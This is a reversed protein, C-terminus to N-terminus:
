YNFSRKGGVSHAVPSVDLKNNEYFKPYLMPCPTCYLEWESMMLHSFAHPCLHDSCNNDSCVYEM